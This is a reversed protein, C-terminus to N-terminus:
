LYNQAKLMHKRELHKTIVLLSKEKTRCSGGDVVTKMYLSGNVSYFDLNYMRM